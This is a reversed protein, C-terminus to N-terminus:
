VEIAEYAADIEDKTVGIYKLTMAPTSHNLIAMIRTIDLGQAYLQYGFTKRLTHTGIPGVNIGAREAADNLIRYAQVRSIPKNGGQRSRFIYEDDAGELAKVEAMVTKSLKIRRPKQTKQERIILEDKGRVDGIKLALLDSIRLGLSVGMILMLRNRGHLAAKLRNLDRTSKIPNVENSM